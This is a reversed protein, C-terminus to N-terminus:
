RESFPSADTNLGVGREYDSNMKEDNDKLLFRCKLIQNHCAQKWIGNKKFRIASTTSKWPLRLPTNISSLKMSLLTDEFIERDPFGGVKEFVERRVFLCHDLYYIKKLDGRVNNSWWSTFDLLPHSVDFRHTFAGWKQFSSLKELSPFADPDLVSRPHNLIIWDDKDCSVLDFSRNYRESRKSSNVEVYKVGQQDLFTVTSDKGPTVGVIPRIDLGQANLDRITELTKWFFPNNQENFASLLVTLM